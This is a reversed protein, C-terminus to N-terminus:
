FLYDKETLNKLRAIRKEISPHSYFMFEIFPHPTRDSLNQEALKNLGAIFPEPNGTMNIAFDDAARENSRSYANMLPATIFQYITLLIGIVPLAAIQAPSSFHFLTRASDYARSVLFLGIFTVVVGLAMGKWIHKLRYHGLEHALVALIEAKSMTNILTDGLIVRRSKGIGTFAANAKRTNKSLNFQYVGALQLGSDRCLDAVEGALEEDQLPSFKYFLPFLLIPALRALIISFLVIVVGMWFWWNEPSYKLLTFFIVLIMLMVPYSILIQKTQEWLWAGFSQNSLQFRHEILYGSIFSFPLLIIGEGIGLLTIFIVLVAYNNQVFQRIHDELKLTFGTLVVAVLFGLGIIFQVASLILQYRQYQKGATTQSTEIM